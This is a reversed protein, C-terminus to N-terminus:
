ARHDATPRMGGTRVAGAARAQAGQRQRQGAPRRGGAGARPVKYNAMRERAWDLLERRDLCRRRAPTRGDAPVVLALGVEGMRRDPVGVVAVQGVAPHLRLVAEVEAPYVNFGGSM